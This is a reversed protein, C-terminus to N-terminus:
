PCGATFANLFSSVDFFDFQGDGTFDATPLQQQFANLFGSIDFFDLTTNGDFDAACPANCDLCDGLLEVARDDSPHFYMHAGRIWWFFGLNSVPSQAWSWSGSFIPTLGVVSIFYRQGGQFTIGDPLDVTFRVVGSDSQALPSPFDYEAIAGTPNAGFIDPQLAITNPDQIYFSVNFGLPPMSQGWWVLRTVTSTHELTFNEWAISDNDSDNQDGPDIWLSSARMIGGGGVPPQLFLVDQAYLPSAFLSSLAAGLTMSATRITTM